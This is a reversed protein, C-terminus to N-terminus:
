QDVGMARVERLEGLLTVDQDMVRALADGARGIGPIVFDAGVLDVLPQLAFRRAGLRPHPVVLEPDDLVRDDWVLVDLDITRPGWRLTRTRGSEREVAVIVEYIDERDAVAIATNLFPAQAPGIPATRYVKAWRVDRFVAAAREFRDLIEADRGVNGGLGVVIM